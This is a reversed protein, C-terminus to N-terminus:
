PGPLSRRWALKYAEFRTCLAVSACVEELVAIAERAAQKPDNSDITVLIGQKNYPLAVGRTQSHDQQVICVAEQSLASTHINFFCPRTRPIGYM